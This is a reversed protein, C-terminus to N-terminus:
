IFESLSLPKATVLVCEQNFIERLQAAVTRVSNLDEAIVEWVYSTERITAGDPAIWSGNTVYQTSGGYTRALLAEAQPVLLVSRTPGHDKPVTGVYFRVEYSSQEM